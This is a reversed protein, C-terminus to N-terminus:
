YRRDAGEVIPCARPSADRLASSADPSAALVAGDDAHVEAVAHLIAERLESAAAADLAGLGRAEM